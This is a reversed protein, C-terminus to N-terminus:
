YCPPFMCRGGLDIFQAVFEALVILSTVTLGIIVGYRM